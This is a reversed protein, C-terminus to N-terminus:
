VQHVIDPSIDIRVYTFCSSLIKERSILRSHKQASGDRKGDTKPFVSRLKCACHNATADSRSMVDRGKDLM